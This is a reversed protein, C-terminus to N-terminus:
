EASSVRVTARLSSRNVITLQWVTGWKHLSGDFKPCGALIPEIRNTNSTDGNFQVVIEQNTEILVFRKVSTYIIFGATGPVVAAQLGLPATSIFEIWFGNVASIEFSRQTNQAFGATIDVTDGVQVGASSFAQLSYAVSPTVVESIGSFVATPDRALVLVTGTAVLVQWYGENLANFPSAVDGTSVGPFFATDGAVVSTFPSGSGATVTLTLNSNVVLTLVISHADVARDTRFGPATGAGSWTARYTISSAPSLTLNFGTSSNTTLTRSGNIVTLSAFPDLEYAPSQDNEVPINVQSLQRNIGVKTPNSTPPADDFALAQVSFTIASM